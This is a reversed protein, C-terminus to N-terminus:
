TTKHKVIDNCSQMKELKKLIKKSIMFYLHHASDM